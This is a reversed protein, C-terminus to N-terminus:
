YQLEDSSVLNLLSRINNVNCTNKNIMEDRVSVLFMSECKNQYFWNSLQKHNFLKKGVVNEFELRFKRLYTYILSYIYIEKETLTKIENERFYQKIYEYDQKTTKNKIQSLTMNNSLCSYFAKIFSNNIFNNVTQSTKISNSQTQFDNIQKTLDKNKIILDQNKNELTKIKSKQRKTEILLGSIDNNSCSLLNDLDYYDATLKKLNLELENIKIELENNKNQLDYNETKLDNDEILLLNNDVNDKIDKLIKNITNSIKKNNRKNNNNNIKSIIYLLYIIIFTITFSYVELKYNLLYYYFEKFLTSQFKSNFNFM